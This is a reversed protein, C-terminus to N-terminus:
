HKADLSGASIKLTPLREKKGCERAISVMLVAECRKLLIM